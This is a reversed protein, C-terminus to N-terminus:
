GSGVSHLSYDIAGGSTRWAAIARDSDPDVAVAAEGSAGSTGAAVIQEPATFITRGPYADIGRAAYIAQDDLDLGTPTSQPETWLAYAEGAPGPALDTLLADHGPASITDISRVGNLDVAATRVVWHGSEAGTWALMVSESLLRVLRLSGSAPALGDPDTFRELLRPDGFHINPASLEAYVSTIGGRTDAWALIARNDDSRLVAIRAGPAASAVHMVSCASRGSGPLDRAYIAGAQEWVALADSRYDMALTLGEVAHGTPSSVRVPALFSHAYYRHVRLQIASTGGHSGGPSVLAVDGLYASALALPAPAGGTTWPATFSGGALGESLLLGSAQGGTSADGGARTGAGTARDGATGSGAAAPAALLIQGHPAAAATVPETLGLARGAATRPISAAGPADGGPAITSLRPGAGGPCRSASNWVIAGPGTGHRPTDSPFLVAPADPASCAGLTVPQLWPGGASQVGAPLLVAIASLALLEVVGLAIRRRRQARARRPLDSVPRGRRVGARRRLGSATATAPSLYSPRHHDTM